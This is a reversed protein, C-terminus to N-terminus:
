KYLPGMVTWRIHILTLLTHLANLVIDSRYYTSLIHYSDGSDDFLFEVFVLFNLRVFM